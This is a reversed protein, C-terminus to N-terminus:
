ILKFEKKIAGEGIKQMNVIGDSEFRTAAAFSKGAMREDLFRIAFYGCNNTSNNQGKVKNVKFKMLIPTQWENLKKKIGKILIDPPDEGTPDYYEVSDPTIWVSCWHTGPEDAKSMNVVFGFPLEKKPLYNMEDVSFVGAFEPNGKFYDEIEDSWLAPGIRNTSTNRLSSGVQNISNFIEDLSMQSPKELAATKEEPALELADYLASRFQRKPTPPSDPYKEERQKYIEELQKKNPRPGPPPRPVPKPLDKPDIDFLPPPSQPYEQVKEERQKKEAEKKTQEVIKWIPPINKNRERLAANLEERTANEPLGLKKLAKDRQTKNFKEDEESLRYEQKPRKIVKEALSKKVEDYPKILKQDAESLGVSLTATQAQDIERLVVDARNLAYPIADIENKIRAKEEETADGLRSELLKKREVLADKGKTVKNKLEDLRTITLTKTLLENTKDVPKEQVPRLARTPRISRMRGKLKKAVFNQATLISKFKSPLQLYQRKGKKIIYYRGNDVFVRVPRAKYKTERRKGVISAEM